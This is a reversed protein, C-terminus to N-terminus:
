EKYIREWSMHMSRFSYLKDLLSNIEANSYAGRPCGPYRTNFNIVLASDRKILKKMSSLYRQENDTFYNKEKIYTLYEEVSLGSPVHLRKRLHLYDLTAEQISRYMAFCTCGEARAKDPLAYTSSKSKHLSFVNNKKSISNTYHGSEHKSQALIIAQECISFGSDILVALIQEEITIPLTKFLIIAPMEYGTGNMARTPLSILLVCLIFVRLAKMFRHDELVAWV